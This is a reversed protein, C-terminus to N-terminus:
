PAERSEQLSPLVIEDFALLHARNIKEIIFLSVAGGFTIHQHGAIDEICLNMHYEPDGKVVDLGVSVKVDGRRGYTNVDCNMVFNCPQKM